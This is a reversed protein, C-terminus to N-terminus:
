RRRPSQRAPDHPRRPRPPALDRPRNVNHLARPGALAQLRRVPVPTADLRVAVAHVARVGDALARELEPLARVHWAAALPELAGSPPATGSRPRGPPGTRVGWAPVVAARGGRSRLLAHWLPPGAYPLDCARVLVWAHGRRRAWRLAAVLGALPGAGAVPDRTWAADIERYPRPAIVLLPGVEPMRAFEAAAHRALTRGHFPARAKDRGFRLSRGGALLAGVVSGDAGRAGAAAGIRRPRRGGRGARRLPTTRDRHPIGAM